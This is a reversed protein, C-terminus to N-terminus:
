TPDGLRLLDGGDHGKQEGVIRAVDCAVREDGVPSHAQPFVRSELRDSLLFMRSACVNRSPSLSPRSTHYRPSRTSSTTSCSTRPVAARWAAASKSSWASGSYRSRATVVPSSPRAYEVKQCM